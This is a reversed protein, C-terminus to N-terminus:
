LYKLFLDLEIDAQELISKLTGRAVEKHMPVICIRNTYYNKLKVHSGKQSIKVFNLMNLISIIKISPLIPYKM